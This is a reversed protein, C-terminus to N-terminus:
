GMSRGDFGASEHPSTDNTPSSVKRVGEDVKRLGEDYVRTAQAQMVGAVEQVTPHDWVQRAKVVLQDYSERGARSGLVFGVAAGGAFWLLRRMM